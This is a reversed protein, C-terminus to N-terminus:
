SHFKKSIMTFPFLESEQFTHMHKVGDVSWVEKCEMCSKLFIHSTLFCPIWVSSVQTERLRCERKKEGIGRKAHTLPDNYFDYSAEDDFVAPQPM